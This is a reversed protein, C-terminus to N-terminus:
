KIVFEKLKELIWIMGETDQGCYKELDTRVKSIEEATAKTGNYSGHTIFLYSLSADSGNAIEFDEYTVGTLAPLVKKLSASGNQKPHYYAFNRFPALLDIMRGITSEIWSKEKPFFEGLNKLVGEEFGQNYVVINGSTGLSKKLAQIFAHRPDKNGEAIFSIHKTKEGEKEIIHTSFQFPIQQYPKLGDYLPIATNYSEFDLFYLPYQLKKIFGGLEKHDIHHNGNKHCNCQIKQKGNLKNHHEEPIDKLQLIGANFLELAKKGGYYLDLIDCEPHDQWFQDDEHIGSTDEHYEEGKMFEPCEKLEIIEILRSIKKTIESMLPEIIETVDAQIFFEKPEIEGSKVYQNNIHLVYCTRIKLGASEYCYKQFSIDELYDEKVSTSSKVEIIDWKDKEVPVLIDARAYCKKNEHLFGAEFLPKRKSLLERSTKDNKAIGFEKISIGEPYLSKALEGVRHGEDFRNQTAGDIQPLSEPRNFALWLAKPCKLGNVYRSKTLLIERIQEQKM